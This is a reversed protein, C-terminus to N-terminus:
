DVHEQQFEESTGIDAVRLHAVHQTVIADPSKLDPCQITLESASRGIVDVQVLKFWGDRLRYVGAHDQLVVLSEAPIKWPPSGDLKLFGLGLTMKAKESLQFGNEHSVAIVATEKAYAPREEKENDEDPERCLGYTPLVALSGLVAWILITRKYKKILFGAKWRM